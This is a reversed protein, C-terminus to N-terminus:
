VDLIPLNTGEANAGEGVDGVREVASYEFGAGLGVGGRDRREHGEEFPERVEEHRAPELEVSVRHEVGDRVDHVAPEERWRELRRHLPILAPSAREASGLGAGAGG